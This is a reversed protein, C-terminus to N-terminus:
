KALRYTDTRPLVTKLPSAVPAHELGPPAFTTTPEDAWATSGLGIAVFGFLLLTRVVM